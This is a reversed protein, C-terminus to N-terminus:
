LRARGAGKDDIPPTRSKAAREDSHTTFFPLTMHVIAGIAIAYLVTGIGVTGGLAWGLALVTVEIGTRVTRISWGTRAALGTMLGDRPGPGFGVGIYVSTAVGNLFIGSLLLVGRIPLSELTPILWLGVDAALGIVIMNSITGIGPRQRLPIWFMLVVAGTIIVVTGFSLPTRDGVGQHFVDWPNLGLDSRVMMAMSLGYLLLGAYLRVLRRMMMAAMYLLRGRTVSREGLPSVEGLCLLTACGCHSRGIDASRSPPQNHYRCACLRCCVDALRHHGSGEFFFTPYRGKAAQCM